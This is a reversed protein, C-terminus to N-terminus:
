KSALHKAAIAELTTAYELAAKRIAQAFADKAADVEKQVESRPADGDLERIADRNANDAAICLSMYKGDLSLTDANFGETAAVFKRAEKAHIVATSITSHLSAANLTAKESADCKAYHEKELAARKENKAKDAAAKAEKEALTKAEETLAEATKPTPTANPLALIGMFHDIRELSPKGYYHGYTYSM